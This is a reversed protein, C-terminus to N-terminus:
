ASGRVVLETPLVLGPAPAAGTGIMELLRRTVERGLENVPQRVTTLEPDTQRAMISDDFGIVAVEEPVSRGAARLARLAGAAMLDSAAFVADLGPERDLLATMARVGSEESFDGIEILAQAQGPLADRYGDLRDVGASMDQPGTITAIRRRGSDLLHRVATTAGGRNDADVWTLPVDRVPRGVLVAPVGAAALGAPLPDDGHLSVLLVGDVHGNLVYQELKKRQGATQAIVLVLQMNTDALAGSVGRVIGAFFPDSFVLAEPESVVLGISDTRRTVLSRAARNPVYGLQAIAAEVTARVAPSVKPSDNIVRSVTARSVGAVAAVEELTPSSV